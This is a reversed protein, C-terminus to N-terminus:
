VGSQRLVNRWEELSLLEPSRVREKWSTFQWKEARPEIRFIGHWEPTGSSFIFAPAPMEDALHLWARLQAKLAVVPFGELDLVVAGGSEVSVSQHQEDLEIRM